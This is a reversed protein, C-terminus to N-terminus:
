YYNSLRKFMLLLAIIERNLTRIQTKLSDLPAEEGRM